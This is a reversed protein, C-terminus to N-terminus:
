NILEAVRADDHSMYPGQSKGQSKTTTTGPADGHTSHDGQSDIEEDDEWGEDQGDDGEGDFEDSITGDSGGPGSSNAENDRIFQTLTYLGKVESDGDLDMDEKIMGGQVDMHVFTFPASVM